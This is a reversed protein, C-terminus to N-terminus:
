KVLVELSDYLHTITLELETKAIAEDEQFKLVTEKDHKNCFWTLIKLKSFCSLARLQELHLEKSHIKSKKAMLYEHAM